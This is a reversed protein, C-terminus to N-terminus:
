ADDQKAHNSLTQYKVQRSRHLEVGLQHIISKPIDNNNNSVFINSVIVTCFKWYIICNSSKLSTESFRYTQWKKNVVMLIFFFFIEHSKCRPNSSCLYCYSHVFLGHVGGSYAPSELISQTPTNQWILSLSLSHNPLWKTEDSGAM